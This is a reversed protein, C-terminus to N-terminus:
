MEFSCHFVRGIIQINKADDVEDPYEESNYSVIRIKGAPLLYLRKLRCLGDQCIAYVDGDHIDKQLTNVAVTAGNPIVPEMSNGKAPFCIVFEKQANKRRFFSKSFRLKYGNHDETNSCGHGAALEISKFYPVEVEDENLPTRDDWEDVERTSLESMPTGDKQQKLQAGEGKALWEVSVGLYDAIKLLNRNSKTKGTMLKWITTQSMGIAEGLKAQSIKKEKMIATLRDALTM